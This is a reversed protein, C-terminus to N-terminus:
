PGSHFVGSLSADAVSSCGGPHVPQAAKRAFFRPVRRRGAAIRPVTSLDTWQVAPAVASAPFVSSDCSRFLVVGFKVTPLIDRRTRNIKLLKGCLRM